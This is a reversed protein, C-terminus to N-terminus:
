QKQVLANLKKTLSSKKRSATNEKIVNKKAAKDVAKYVLRLKEQAEKINDQTIKGTKELKKIFENLDKILAKM